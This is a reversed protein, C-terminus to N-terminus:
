KFETYIIIDTVSIKMNDRIGEWARNIDVDNDLIKL